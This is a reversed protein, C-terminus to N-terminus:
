LDVRLSGAPPHSDSTKEVSLLQGAALLSCFMLLRCSLVRPVPLYTPLYTPLYVLGRFEHPALEQHRPCSREPSFVDADLDRMILSMLSGFRVINRM